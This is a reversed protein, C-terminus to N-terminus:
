KVLNTGSLDVIEKELTVLTVLVALVFLSM